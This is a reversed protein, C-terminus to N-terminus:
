KRAEFACALDLGFELLKRYASEVSDVTKGDATYGDRFLMLSGRGSCECSFDPYSKFISTIEPSLSTRIAREDPGKVSFKRSFEADDGVDIDQAGALEAIRNALRTPTLQFAPFRGANTEMWLVTQRVTFEKQQKSVFDFFCVHRKQDAHQVQGRLLRSIRTVPRDGTFQFHDLQQTFQDNEQLHDHHELELRQAVKLILTHSDHVAGPITKLGKVFLSIVAGVVVIFAVAVLGILWPNEIAIQVESLIAM